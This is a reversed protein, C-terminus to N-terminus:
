ACFGGSFAALFGDYTLPHLLCRDAGLEHAHAEDSVSACVGVLIEGGSLASVLSQASELGDISSFLVLCPKRTWIEEPSPIRTLQCVQYGSQEAFRSILYALSPDKGILTIETTLSM